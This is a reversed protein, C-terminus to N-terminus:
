CYFRATMDLARDPHHRDIRPPQLVGPVPKPLASLTIKSVNNMDDSANFANASRRAGAYKSPPAGKLEKGTKGSSGHAFPLSM